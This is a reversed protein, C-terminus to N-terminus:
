RECFIKLKIMLNNVMASAYVIDFNSSVNCIIGINFEHLWQEQVVVIDKTKSYSLDCLCAVTTVMCTLRRFVYHM